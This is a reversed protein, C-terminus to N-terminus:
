KQYKTTKEVIMETCSTPMDIAKISYFLKYELMESFHQVNELM